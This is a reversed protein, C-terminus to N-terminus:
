SLGLVEKEVIQFPDYAQSEASLKLACQKYQPHAWVEQVAAAIAEPTRAEDPLYAGLGAHKVRQGIDGKDFVSGCQVMPVANAIAHGVGGFGSNSVFVDAHALIADYPFYDVVRANSPLTGNEFLAMHEALTAGKKCLIAIVLTDKQNALGRLCPVVTESHNLVETGQAVLVIRKRDTKTAAQSASNDLVEKYWAPFVLDPPSPKAPFFGLYKLHPPDHPTQLGFVPLGIQLVVDHCITSSDQFPHRVSGRKDYREYLADLSDDTDVADLMWRALAEVENVYIQSYVAMNRARSEESNDCPLGSGWPPREPAAWCLPMLGVGVYRVPVQEFGPPLEAGLVLAATASWTTDSIIVVSRGQLADGGGLRQHISTLGYRITDLGSPIMKAWGVFFSKITEGGIPVPVDSLRGGKEPKYLGKWLGQSGDNAM